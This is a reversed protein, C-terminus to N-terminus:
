AVGSASAMAAQVPRATSIESIGIEDRAHARLADKAM